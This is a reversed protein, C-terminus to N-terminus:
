AGELGNQEVSVENQLVTRPRAGAAKEVEVARGSDPPAPGDLFGASPLVVREGFVGIEAIAGLKAAPLEEIEGLNGAFAFQRGIDAGELVLLRAPGLAQNLGGLFKQGDDPATGNWTM